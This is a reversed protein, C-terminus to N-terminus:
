NTIGWVRIVGDDGCSFLKQGDPSFLITTPYGHPLTLTHLLTGDSVRWLRITQDYYAVALVQGDPSFAVSEVYSLRDTQTALTILLQGTSIDYLWVQGDVEDAGVALFRGDGSFAFAGPSAENPTALGLFPETEGIHALAVGIYDCCYSDYAFVPETPSLALAETTNDGLSLKQTVGGIPWQEVGDDFAASIVTQGDAAFLLSRIGWSSSQRGLLRLPQGTDAQWLWIEGDGDGTAFMEGDASLALSTGFSTLGYLRRMQNQGIFWQQVYRNNLFLLQQMDSSLVIGSAGFHNELTTLLTQTDPQWLQIAGNWVALTNGDPSYAVQPNDLTSLRGELSGDQLNWLRVIGYGSAAALTQEDPSFILGTIRYPGPGSLRPPANLVNVGRQNTATVENLYYVFSLDSVRWVMLCDGWGGAAVFSGSPSSIFFDVPDCPGQGPEHSVEQVISNDSLRLQYIRKSTLVIRTQGDWSTEMAVYREDATMLPSTEDPLRTGDSVQWRQLGVALRSGDASFEVRLEYPEAIALQHLLEGGPLRHLEVETQRSPLKTGLALTQWDPSFAITYLQNAAAFFGVQQYTATDYFYVGLPTAVAVRSGDPAYEVQIAKGLGLRAVEQLQGVNGPQIVPGNTPLSVNVPILVPPLPTATPASTPSPTITPTATATPRRTPIPTQTPTFTPVSTLTATPLLTTTATVQSIATAPLATATPRPTLTATAEPVSDTCAVLFACFLMLWAFKQKM